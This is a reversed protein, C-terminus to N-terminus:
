HEPDEAVAEGQQDQVGPLVLLGLGLLHTFSLSFCVIIIIIKNLM